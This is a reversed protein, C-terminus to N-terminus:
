ATIFKNRIAFHILDSLSHLDVKRMINARHAEVTKTSLKLVVAVEKNTRGEALLQLVERERSTLRGPLDDPAKLVERGKRYGNLVIQSIHSTFFPQHKLLSEIAAILSRGADSKVIYGRVGAALVDHVTQESDHMTLMLVETRPLYQLIRRAAEIGNMSPMTIDLIVVDPKLQRSLEVAERGDQAEGCVVWKSKAELLARLGRRVIEHDDAVLIRTKM